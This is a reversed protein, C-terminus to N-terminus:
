KIGTRATLHEPGRDVSTPAQAELVRRLLTTVRFHPIGPPSTVLLSGDTIEYRYGNDPLRQLDELTWPGGSPPLALSETM